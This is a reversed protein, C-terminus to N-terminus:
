ALREIIRQTQEKLEQLSSENIITYDALAIPGGKNSNEIENKDRDTAEKSTLPRIKRVGLRTSRTKPSSYVAVLSLKDGYYDKLLVFEEWSYLGDVIVNSKHLAEDIRPLNLKAYAAMGNERRFQERVQRENAENLPLGRKKVEIDTIDGFRIRVYGGKEFQRAVESKGSGAMGVLAIVKM